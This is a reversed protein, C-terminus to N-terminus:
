KKKKKGWNAAGVKRCQVLAGSGYASPWEGEDRTYAEKVKDYCEPDKQRSSKEKKKKLVEQWKKVEEKYPPYRYMPLKKMENYMSESMIDDVQSYKEIKVGGRKEVMASLRALNTGEIPNLLTVKPKSSGLFNDRFNLVKRFTGGERDYVYGNGVFHFKGLDRFSTYGKLKNTEDDFEAVIKLPSIISPYGKEEATVFNDLRQLESEPVIEVRKLIRYSM